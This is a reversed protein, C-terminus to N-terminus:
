FFFFFKSFFTGLGTKKKPSNDMAGEVKKTEPMDKNEEEKETSMEKKVNEKNEEKIEEDEGSSSEDRKVEKVVKAKGKDPSAKPTMKRKKPTDEESSSDSPAIIRSRKKDGTGVSTRKEESKRHKEFIPEDESDSSKTTSVVKPSKATKSKIKPTLSKKRPSKVTKKIKDPTKDDNKADSYKTCHFLIVPRVNFIKNKNAIVTINSRNALTRVVYCFVRIM